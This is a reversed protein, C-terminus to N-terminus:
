AHTKVGPRHHHVHPPRKPHHHASGHTTAAGHGKPHHLAARSRAAAVNSHGADPVTGIATTTATGAGGGSSTSSISGAGPTPTDSPLNPIFHYIVSITASTDTKFASSVKENAPNTTVSGTAHGTVSIPIRLHGTFAALAAPSTLVTTRAASQSTVTGFTKGSAGGGEATANFSQVVPPVAVSIPGSPVNVSLNASTTGAITSSTSGLNQASFQSSFSGSTVLDVETLTGMTASFYLVAQNSLSPNTELDPFTATQTMTATAQTGGSLLRRGELTRVDPTLGRRPRRGVRPFLRRVLITPREM